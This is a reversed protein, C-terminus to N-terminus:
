TASTTRATAGTSSRRGRLLVQLQDPFYRTTYTRNEVLGNGLTLGALPGSPYYSADSVVALAGSGPDVSLSLERDAFDFSYTAVSGDPYTLGSRNGNADYALALDGDETMRGFRDWCYEVTSGNRGISALHGIPASDGACSGASDYVYTVDLTAGPFHLVTVRDLADIERTQDVGRPDITELLAASPGYRHSTVAPPTGSAPSSENTLLDRDSTTYSTQNGEADIVSDIHDQDDYGYSTVACGAPAPDTTCDTGATWPERLESMRDLEDYRYVQTPPHIASPHNADWVKELDNDCDYRYETVVQSAPPADPDHIMKDLHCRSTYEYSSRPRTDWGTGNYVQQDERTRQGYDDLTFAVREDHTTEGADSKSGIAAIRGTAPDRGYATANGQPRVVQQLDGFTDYVYETVLDGTQPLDGLSFDTGLTGAREIVFRVRDMQGDYQTEVTHGNPDTVAIRRNFDDWAYTTTGVLPDARSDELMGSRGAVAYTFTVENSADPATFGPGPPDITQPRGASNFDSYVTSLTFAGEATGDGDADYTSEAGSSRRKSSSAPPRSLELADRSLRQGLDLSAARPGAAGPFTPSYELHTTRSSGTGVAETRDELTGDAYYTYETRHGKADIMASPLLTHGRVTSPTAYKYQRNPGGCSPCEGDIKELRPKGGPADYGITYEGAVGYPDTVTALTPAYPDDYSWQTTPWRDRRTGPTPAM